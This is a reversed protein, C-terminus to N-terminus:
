QPNHGSWHDYLEFLASLVFVAGIIQANWVAVSNEALGLALPAAIMSLGLTVGAVMQVQDHWPKNLCALLLATLGGLILVSTEGIRANMLSSQGGLLLFPSVLLWLGLSAYIWRVRAFMEM